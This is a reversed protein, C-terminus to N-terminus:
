RVLESVFVFKYGERELQPMVEKLVELTVKRDHGIGIASGQERAKLKLKKIQAKIYAPDQLNDLFVDRRAFKVSMKDALACSVSKACVLSDLFYLNRKKLIKFIYGMIKEDSTALSGMHNSVGLAHAVSVLDRELIGAVAREDMSVTITNNELRYKEKPEMPLHLIIEKGQAYLQQCAQRTYPLNPLVSATLPYEIQRALPINKMNYGWDDIVIAIHGAPKLAPKPAPKLPVVVTKEKPQKCLSLLVITQAALLAALIAVAIRYKKIRENM